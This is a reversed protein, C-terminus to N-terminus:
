KELIEESFLVYDFLGLTPAYRPMEASLSQNAGRYSGTAKINLYNPFVLQQGHKNDLSFLKIELDDVDGYLAKVRVRYNKNGSFSNITASGGNYLMKQVNLDKAKM